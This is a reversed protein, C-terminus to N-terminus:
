LRKFCVETGAVLDVGITPPAAQPDELMLEASRSFLGLLGLRLPRDFGARHRGLLPPCGSNPHDLLM